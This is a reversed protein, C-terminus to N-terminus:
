LTKKSVIKKVTYYQSTHTYEYISVELGNHHTLINNHEKFSTITLM